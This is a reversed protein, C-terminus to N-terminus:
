LIASASRLAHCSINVCVPLGAIHTPYTEINVALATTKGGLGMPGINLRNIKKLLDCELDKVKSKQSKVKLKRLLAKKALLCAYDQTGGIGVGVVFPPCADPGTQRVTEVIFEKIKKLDVTPRFMKVQGKNECGFGKPLVTLKIRSGTTIETHIISPIYGPRGRLLPDNVVSNRLFAKKYGSEVGKNVATNLSGGTIHADQGIEIFVVPLGTDQCIALKERNAIDANDITAKLIMKARSNNESRYASKLAKLVDPRLKFNAEICLRAVTEKIKEAKIMRMTNQQLPM